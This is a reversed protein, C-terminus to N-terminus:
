RGPEVPLGAAKWAAFGERFLLVEYGQDRLIPQLRAALPCRPGICYVIVPRDPQFRSRIKPFVAEFRAPPLSVAGPIHGRAFARPSRADVFVARRERFHGQAEALSIVGLGVPTEFLGLPQESLRNWGLALGAAMVLIACGGLLGARM